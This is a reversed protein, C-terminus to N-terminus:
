VKPARKGKAAAVKVARFFEELLERAKPGVEDLKEAFNRAERRAEASKPSKLLDRVVGVLADVDVFFLTMAAELAAIDMLGKLRLDEGAILGFKEAFSAGQAAAEKHEANPARAVEAAISPALGAAREAQELKDIMKSSVPIKGNKIDYIQTRSVDMERCLEAM